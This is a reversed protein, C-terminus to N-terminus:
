HDASSHFIIAWKQFGCSVIVPLATRNAEDLDDPIDAAILQLGFGV